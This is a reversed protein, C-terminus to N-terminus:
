IIEVCFSPAESITNSSVLKYISKAKDQESISLSCIFEISM